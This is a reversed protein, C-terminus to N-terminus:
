DTDTKSSDRCLEQQCQVDKMYRAILLAEARGDKSATLQDAVAPFLKKALDISLHKRETKTLGKTILGFHKKWVQPKVKIFESAISYGALEAMGALKMFTTNAQCSQGPRGCVDEVAAYTEEYFGEIDALYQQICWYTHYDKDLDKITLVTNDDDIIAVCGASGPDIGIYRNTMIFEQTSIM